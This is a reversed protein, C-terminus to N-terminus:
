MGYLTVLRTVVSTSKINKTKLTLFMKSRIKSSANKRLVNITKLKEGKANNRINDM